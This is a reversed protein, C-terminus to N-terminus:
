CKATQNIYRRYQIYITQNTDIETFSLDPAVGSPQTPATHIETVRHSNETGHLYGLRSHRPPTSKQSETVSRQATSSGQVGTDSKERRARALLTRHLRGGRRPCSGGHGHRCRATWRRCGGGGGGGGGGLGGGLHSLRRGHSPPILCRDHSM